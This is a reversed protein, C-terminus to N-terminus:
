STSSWLKGPSADPIIRIRSPDLLYGRVVAERADDVFRAIGFTLHLTDGGIIWQICFAHKRKTRAFNPMAIFPMTNAM